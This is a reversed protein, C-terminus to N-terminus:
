PVLGRNGHFGEAVMSVQPSLPVVSAGPDAAAFVAVRGAVPGACAAFPASDERAM